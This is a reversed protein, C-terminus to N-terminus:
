QLLGSSVSFSHGHSGKAVELEGKKYFQMKIRQVILGLDLLACKWVQCCCHWVAGASVPLSLWAPSAAEAQVVM